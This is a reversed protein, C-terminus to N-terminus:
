ASTVLQDSQNLNGLRQALGSMTIDIEMSSKSYHSARCVCRLSVRIQEHADAQVTLLKGIFGEGIVVDPGATIKM